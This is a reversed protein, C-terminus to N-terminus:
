AVSNHCWRSSLRFTGLPLVGLTKGTGALASAIGDITGAGGAAVVVEADSRTTKEALRSIEGGHRAVLMRAPVGRSQFLKDIQAQTEEQHDGAGRNIIVIM